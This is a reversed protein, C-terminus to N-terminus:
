LLMTQRFFKFNGVKCALALKHRDSEQETPAVEPMENEGQKKPVIGPVKSPSITM